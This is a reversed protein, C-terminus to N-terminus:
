SRRKLASGARAKRRAVLESHASRTVWRCNRPSYVLDDRIRVLFMGPRAGAAVAWDFFCQFTEWEPCVRIGLAGNSAFLEHSPDSTRARLSQWRQYLRTREPTRYRVDSFPRVGANRLARRVTTRSVDLSEAIEFTAMQLDRKLKLVLQQDVHKPKKMRPIRKRSRPLPGDWRSRRATAIAAEPDIGCELRRWLTILSVKCRSDQAWEKMNKIEGFAEIRLGKEASRVHENRNSAIQERTLWRCNRPGFDRHRNKLGLGFGKRWGSGIAWHYFAEFSNWEDCVGIGRGGYHSYGERWPSHCRNRMSQWIRYVRYGKESHSAPSDRRKTGLSKLRRAVTAPHAGVYEGVEGYTWRDLEWLERAAQWDIRGRPKRRFRASAM